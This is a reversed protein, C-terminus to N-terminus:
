FSALAGEIDDMTVVSRVTADPAIRKVMPGLVKGGLEVFETVGAGWMAAVSERWRVRGTVQEVLRAKIEDADAVPGALVNAYVPLLPASVTAKGLAEEMADAAPQMLPCHFPASVPLLVGRKIGHDKVMAVAREIAGRHGSIVVQTPDNDNAVACVEGEAAAEALAQAKDIDAGLLAAMAGEGVPVAAQMARGRLKLLRATTSLDFARAACLASYEGLSHGAVYDGKDALSFGGEREMVRLTAIANAMIAPQANETLTLDSEPGEVMMRFLHQSLADDVEQFLERAAPSAESLTKGMGVAQSGQGPFIFARM